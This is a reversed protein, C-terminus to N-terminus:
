RGLLINLHIPQYVCSLWRIVDPDSPDMLYETIEDTRGDYIEVAILGTVNDKTADIHGGFRDTVQVTTSM